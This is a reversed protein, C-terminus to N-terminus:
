ISFILDIGPRIWRRNVGVICMNWIVDFNELTIRQWIEKKDCRTTDGLIVNTSGNTYVIGYMTCLTSDSYQENYSGVCLNYKKNDTFKIHTVPIDVISPTYNLYKIIVNDVDKLIDYEEQESLDNATAPIDLKGITNTTNTAYLKVDSEPHGMGFEKLDYYYDYGSNTISWNYKYRLAEKLENVLGIMKPSDLERIYTTFLLKLTNTTLEM